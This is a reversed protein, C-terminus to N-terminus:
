IQSTQAFYPNSSLAVETFKVVRFKLLQIAQLATEIPDQRHPVAHQVVVDAHHHLQCNIRRCCQRQHM